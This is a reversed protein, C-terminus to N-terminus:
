EFFQSAHHRITPNSLGGDEKPTQGLKVLHDRFAAADTLTVKDFAKGDLHAELM